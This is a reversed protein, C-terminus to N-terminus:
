LWAHPRCHSSMLPARSALASCTPHRNRQYESSGTFECESQQQSLAASADATSAAAGASISIFQLPTVSSIRYAQKFLPAAIMPMNRSSLHLGSLYLRDVCNESSLSASMHICLSAYHTLSSVEAVSSPSDLGCLLLILLTCLLHSKGALELDNV